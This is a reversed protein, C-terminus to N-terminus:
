YIDFKVFHLDPPTFLVKNKVKEFYLSDRASLIKIEARLPNKNQLYNKFMM